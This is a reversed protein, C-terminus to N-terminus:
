ILANIERILAEAQASFKQQQKLMIELSARATKLEPSNQFLDENEKLAKMVEADPAASGLRILEYKEAPSLLNLQNKDNKEWASLMQSVQQFPTEPLRVLGAAGNEPVAWRIAMGREFLPWYTDTWPITREGGKIDKISPWSM